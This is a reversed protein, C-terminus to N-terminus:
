GVEEQSPQEPAAPEGGLAPIQSMFLVASGYLSWVVLLVAAIPWGSLFWHPVVGALQNQGPPANLGPLLVGAQQQYLQQNGTVTVQASGESAAYNNDGAFVATFTLTGSQRAVFQAVALGTADTTAEALVMDGTAQLFRTNTTFDIREKPIPVGGIGVLKAQLTVTQGLTVSGPAAVGIATPQQSAAAAPGAAGGASPKVVLHGNQLFEHISCMIVCTFGFTGPKGATFKLTGERHYYDIADTELNYGELKIVHQDGVNETEAFVFTLEVLQGQEVEINFDGPQGNFGQDTIEVRIQVPAPTQAHVPVSTLWPVSLVFATLLGVPWRKPLGRMNSRM